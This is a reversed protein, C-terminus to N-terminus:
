YERMHKGIGRKVFCKNNALRIAMSSNSLCVRTGRLSIQILVLSELLILLTTMYFTQSTAYIENMVHVCCKGMCLESISVPDVKETGLELHPM